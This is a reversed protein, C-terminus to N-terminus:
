RGDRALHVVLCRQEREDTIEEIIYLNVNTRALAVFSVTEMEM